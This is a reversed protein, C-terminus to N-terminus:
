DDYVNDLATKEPFRERLQAMASDPLSAGLVRYAEGLAETRTTKMPSRYEAKEKFNPIVSYYKESKIDKVLYYNRGQQQGSETVVHGIPLNIVGVDGPSDGSSEPKYDETGGYNAGGKVTTAGFKSDPDVDPSHYDDEGGKPNAKIDNPATGFKAEGFEYSIESPDPSTWGYPIHVIESM